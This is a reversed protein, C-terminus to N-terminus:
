KKHVIRRIHTQTYGYKIALDRYNAGNRFEQKISQHLESTSGLKPKPIYIVSGGFAKMLKHAEDVGILEQVMEFDENGDKM